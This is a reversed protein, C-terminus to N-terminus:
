LDRRPRPKRPGNKKETSRKSPRGTSPEVISGMLRRVTVRIRELAKRVRPEGDSKRRKRWVAPSGDDDERGDFRLGLIRQDDPSLRSIADEAAAVLEHYEANEVPTEVHHDGRFGRLAEQRRNRGRQIGSRIRNELSAMFGPITVVDRLQRRGQPSRMKRQVEAVIREAVDADENVSRRRRIQHHMWVCLLGLAALDARRLGAQIPAPLTVWPWTVM